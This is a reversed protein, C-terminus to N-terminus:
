LPSSIFYRNRGFLPSHLGRPLSEFGAEMAHPSPLSHRLASGAASSPKTEALPLLFPSPVPPGAQASFGLPSHRNWPFLICAVILNRAWIYVPQLFQKRNKFLTKPNLILPNSYKQVSAM